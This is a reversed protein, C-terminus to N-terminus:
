SKVIERQRRDKRYRAWVDKANDCNPDMPMAMGEGGDFRFCMADSDCMPHEHKVKVRAWALGPLAMVPGLWQPDFYMRGAFYATPKQESHGCTPCQHPERFCIVESAKHPKKRCRSMQRVLSTVDPLNRGGTNAEGPAPVRVMVRSNTAYRWGDFVFPETLDYRTYDDVAFCFPQLDITMDTNM